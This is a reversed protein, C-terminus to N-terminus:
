GERRGGRFTWIAKGYRFSRLFTVHDQLEHAAVLDTLEQFHEVNEAVRPDYGGAMVLHIKEWLEPKAAWLTRLVSM